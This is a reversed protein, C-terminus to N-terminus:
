VRETQAHVIRGLVFTHEDCRKRPFRMEDRNDSSIWWDGSDRILRKVVFEGDFNLAFAEGDVPEADRTNVVVVDGDKLTPDMSNGRVKVAYLADPEYGREEFWRAQFFLPAGDGNDLYDVVFGAVGASIRFAVKRIAIFEESHAPVVAQKKQREMTGIGTELWDVSVNLARAIAPLHKSTQSPNKELQSITGQSVGAKMALKEQSLKLRTRATRIRNGISM